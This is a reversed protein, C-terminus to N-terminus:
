DLIGKLCSLDRCFQRESDKKVFEMVYFLENCKNKQIYDIYNKWKKKGLKLSFRVCNKSWNFVHVVVLYPLVKKLNDFDNKKDGLPQWYTKYNDRDVNKIFQLATDGNDNLTNNHFESAVILNYKKAIDCLKQVELVYDKVIYNSCKISSMKGLWIRIIKCNIKSATNCIKEFKDYDKEGVRYYTGYSLNKVKSDLIKKIIADNDEYPLHVDSGWEIYDVKNNKAINIIEDVSKKRFTVTTFGVM